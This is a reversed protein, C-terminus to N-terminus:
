LSYCYDNCETVILYESTWYSAFSSPPWASVQTTVSSGCPMGSVSVLYAMNQNTSLVFQGSTAGDFFVVSLVFASPSAM